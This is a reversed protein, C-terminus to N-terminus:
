HLTGRHQPCVAELVNVLELNAARMVEPAITEELGIADWAGPVTRPSARAPTADTKHLPEVTDAIANAVHLRMAAERDEEAADPDHHHEIPQWISAPLAWVRLLAGGVAAHDFGLHERELACLDEAGGHMSELIASAADPRRAFILLRGVDHLLGLLFLTERGRRAPDATLYRAVLGTYVSHHWFSDMDVLTAPIADFVVQASSALVMARLEELGIITVAQSVTEVRTSLGYFPSNVIRLLRAALAPDLSLVRAIQPSTTNPEALLENIRVCVEPLSVLGSAEAVFEECNTM